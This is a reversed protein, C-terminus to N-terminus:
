LGRHGADEDEEGEALSRLRDRFRLVWAREAEILCRAHSFMAAVHFPVGPDDAADIECRRAELGAVYRTLCAAVETPALSPLGALGQLFLPYPREPESLARQLNEAYAARGRDTPAYVRRAPGRGPAPELRSTVLGAKALKRLVFYISSFGVQTWNRMGREEILREMEYGHMEREMVLSLLALETNTLTRNM